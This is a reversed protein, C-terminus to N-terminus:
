IGGNQQQTARMTAFALLEDYVEQGKGGRVAMYAETAGAMFYDRLCFIAEPTLQIPIPFKSIPEENIAKEFHEMLTM